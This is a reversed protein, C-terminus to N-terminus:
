NYFKWGNQSVLNMIFSKERDYDHRGKNRNEYFTKTKKFDFGFINVNKNQMTSLYYLIQLGTSPPAGLENNLYQSQFIPLKFIKTTFKVKRIKYEMEKKTPTFILTHFEALQENYKEFTNIESSALYDWRSGQCLPDEIEARNFRITPYLDILHGNQKNFISEANGVVSIPYKFDEM